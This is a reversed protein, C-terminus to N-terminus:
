KITIHFEPREGVANDDPVVTVTYHDEQLGINYTFMRVNGQPVEANIINSGKDGDIRVHYDGEANTLIVVVTANCDEEVDFDTLDCNMDDETVLYSFDATLIMDKTAKVATIGVGSILMVASLIGAYLFRIKRHSQPCLLMAGLTILIPSLCGLILYVGLVSSYDTGAASGTSIGAAGASYTIAVSLLNNMFHMLCSLLINNKKVVVFSLILGLAMTSLFRLVTVHFLGFFIGMILVIVWDRKISRFNSIIAGRHIAEECIAPLVCIVLVAAPFSLSGYLFGSLQDAEGASGPIIVATLAVLMISIPFIGIVLLICGFLDKLTVKKIPFVEKIKVRCVLCFVVALALLGLETIILGPIGLNLQLPTFVVLFLALEIGFLVFGMWPRLRGQDSIREM